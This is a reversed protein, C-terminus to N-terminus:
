HYFIPVNNGGPPNRRPVSSFRAAETSAASTENLERSLAAARKPTRHPAFLYVVPKEGSFICDGIKSRKDGIKSRRCDITSQRDGSM